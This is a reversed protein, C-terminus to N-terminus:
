HQCYNPASFITICPPDENEGAWKHLKYGEDKQEHARILAKLANQKLINRLLKWGFLVSIGRDNPMETKNPADKTKIPDAWLLDNFLSELDGPEGRRDIENIQDLTQLRSSIGGHLALYQGNVLAALPLAQFAEIAAQFTEEDYKMLMQKRFNYQETQEISEHNGRLLFVQDPYRVKLAFLYAIVEPGHQGRDVYDGLFLFKKNTKGFRMSRMVEILDYYQGHIDGFM